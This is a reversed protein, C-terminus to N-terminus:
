PVFEKGSMIPSLPGFALSLTLLAYHGQGGAQSSLLPPHCSTLIKGMYMAFNRSTPYPHLPANQCPNFFFYDHNKKKPFTARQEGKKERDVHRSGCGALYLFVLGQAIRKMGEAGRQDNPRFERTLEGEKMIQPSSGALNNQVGIESPIGPAFKGRGM